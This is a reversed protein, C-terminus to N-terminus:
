KLGIRVYAVSEINNLIMNRDNDQYTYNLKVNIRQYNRLLFREKNM